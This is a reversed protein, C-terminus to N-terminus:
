KFMSRLKEAAIFYFKHVWKVQKHMQELEFIAGQMGAMYGKKFQRYREEAMIIGEETVPVCWAESRRWANYCKTELSNYDM